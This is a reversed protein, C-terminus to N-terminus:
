AARRIELVPAAQGIQWVQGSLQMPQGIQHMQGSPFRQYSELQKPAYQLARTEDDPAFPDESPSLRLFVNLNEVFQINDTGAQNVIGTQSGLLKSAAIQGFAMIVAQTELPTPNGFLYIGRLRGPTIGTKSSLAQITTGFAALLKALAELTPKPTSNPKM